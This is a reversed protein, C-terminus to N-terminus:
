AGQTSAAKSGTAIGYCEPGYGREISEPDNLPRGCRICVNEVAFEAQREVEQDGTVYRFVATACWRAADTAKPAFRIVGSNPYLTAVPEWDYDEIFVRSAERMPVTNWKGSPTRKRCRFRLTIHRQTKRSTVTVTLAGQSLLYAARHEETPVFRSLRQEAM